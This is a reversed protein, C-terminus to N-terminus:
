GSKITGIEEDRVIAPKGLWVFLSSGVSQFVLSRDSDAVQVVYSNFATRSGEEKSWVMPAGSYDSSLMRNIKTLQEAVKKEWKPKTYVVYWNKM